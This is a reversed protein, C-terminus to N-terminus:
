PTVTNRPSGFFGLLRSLGHAQSTMETATTSLEEASAANRQTVQDVQTMARSIQSLGERQEQCLAAVEHVLDTTKQVCPVLDRILQSAHEATSLSTAATAKAERASSRSREALKRVEAAVVAFGRGADGARAAEIAANLSLINTQHAIDEVVTIQDAIARMAATTADVAVGSSEADRVSRKAFDEMHRAADANNRVSEAIAEISASVEESSAAQESTGSALEASAASVHASATAVGAARSEADEIIRSLEDLFDNFHRALVGVEDDDKVPFRRSLQGTGKSLEGLYGGFQSLTNGLRRLLAFAIGLAIALGALRVIWTRQRLATVREQAAHAAVDRSARLDTGVEVLLADRERLAPAYERAFIRRAEDSNGRALHDRIADEARVMPRGDAAEHAKREIRELEVDGVLARSLTDAIRRAEDDSQRKREVEGADKPDVLSGRLANSSTALAGRLREASLEATQYRELTAASDAEVKHQGVEFWTALSLSVIIPSLSALLLRQYLRLRVM